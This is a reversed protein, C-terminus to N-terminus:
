TRAIRARAEAQSREDVLIFICILLLKFKFFSTVSKGSGPLPHSPQKVGIEPRKRGDEM